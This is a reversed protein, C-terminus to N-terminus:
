AARCRRPRSMTAGAVAPQGRQALAWAPGLVLTRRVPPWPGAPVRRPVASKWRWPAIGGPDPSRGHARDPLAIRRSPWRRGGAECFRRVAAHGEAGDGGGTVVAWRRPGRTRPRLVCGFRLEAM